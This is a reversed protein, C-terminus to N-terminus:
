KCICWGIGERMWECPVRLCHLFNALAGINRWCIIPLHRLATFPMPLRVESIIYTYM